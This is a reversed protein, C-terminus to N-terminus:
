AAAMSERIQRIVPGTEPRVRRWIYFSQAAQEVLMGLGDAVAWAAHHAAWRMFVTPQAGYVMDYCCSRETLVTGPLDPMEGSLGASTANIVLDFSRDGVLAYGGGEVPGIDAFEAALQRARAPTRNVILLEKPKERLLPELVGRAAGGAGLVLVRLGQVAWGLNAIMDRVLGIGDTNDGEIGGDACRTLTNVAGARRARDTLRDAFEFAEQKFPVTVNLGAGAEDFFKRAARVFGDLEVLVARYQLQQGCQAAFAAHIAPSKSQKIPNGFVAYRDIGSM